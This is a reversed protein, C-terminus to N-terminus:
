KIAADISAQVNAASKRWAEAAAQLHAADNALLVERMGLRMRQFDTEAETIKQATAQQRAAAASLFVAASNAMLEKALMAGVLLLGLASLLILKTYPGLRFRM